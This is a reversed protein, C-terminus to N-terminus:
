HVLAAIVRGLLFGIGCSIGGFALTEIGSRFWHVKTFRTKWIGMIFLFTIVVIAAIILARSVSPVFFFSAIAPIAGILFSGASVLGIRTPNDM